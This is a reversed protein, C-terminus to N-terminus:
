NMGRPYNDAMVPQSNRMIDAEAQMEAQKQAKEAEIKPQEEDWNIGMNGAATEVSEAGMNVRIQEVQTVELDSVPLADAWRIKPEDITRGLIEMCAITVRILGDGYQRHLTETKAVQSMFAAKIGLNTIQKYAEPGGTLKTVRSQRMFKNDLFNLYNMGNAIDANMELVTARANENETSLVSDIEDEVTLAGAGGGVGTVFVKSAAQYRLISKLDSAVKNIADNLDLHAEHDGYYHFPKPLHQWDILPPNNYQWEVRASEEWENRDMQYEIIVWNSNGIVGPAVFDQKRKKGQATFRKEYWMINEYDDDAWYCTVNAPNLLVPRPYEESETPEIISIFVHGELFGTLGANNLWTALDWYKWFDDVIQQAASVEIVPKEPFAFSGTDNAAERTNNIIVNDDFKSGNKPPKLPKPQKGDYYKWTKEHWATRERREEEAANQLERKQSLGQMQDWYLSAAPM